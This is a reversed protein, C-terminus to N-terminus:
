GALRAAASRAQQLQGENLQQGQNRGASGLYLTDVVRAGIAGAAVKLTKMPGPMILRNLIAPAGSSTVLVARQGSDKTRIVPIAKGWPWFTYCILREVFRKMIATSASFNVPAAFVIAEAADLKELITPMEDPIVCKGRRKEFEDQTCVRCNRCFEIHKEALVIKETEFGRHQLESLIADVTQETIGGRRYSGEIAVAKRNM